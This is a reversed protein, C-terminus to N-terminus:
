EGGSARVGELESPWDDFESLPFLPKAMPGIIPMTRPENSTRTANIARTKQTRFALFFPVPALGDTPLTGTTM